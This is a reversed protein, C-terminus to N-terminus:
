LTFVRVSHLLLSLRPTTTKHQFQPTTALENYMATNNQAHATNYQATFQGIQSYYLQAATDYTTCNPSVRSLFKLSYTPM